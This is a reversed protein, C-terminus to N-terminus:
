LVYWSGGGKWSVSNCILEEYSIRHMLKQVVLSLLTACVVYMAMGTWWCSNLSRMFMLSIGMYISGVMLYTFMRSKRRIKLAIEYTTAVFFYSFLIRFLQGLFCLWSESIILSVMGLISIKAFVVMILSGTIDQFSIPVLALSLNSCSFLAPIDAEINSITIILVVTEILMYKPPLVFLLSLCSLYTLIERRIKKKEYWAVAANWNLLSSFLRIHM